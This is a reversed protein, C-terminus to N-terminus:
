IIRTRTVALVILRVTIISSSGSYKQLTSDRKKYDFNENHLLLSPLFPMKNCKPACLKSTIRLPIQRIQWPTTVHNCFQWPWHYIWCKLFIKLNSKTNINYLDQFKFSVIFIITRKEINYEKKRIYEKLYVLNM